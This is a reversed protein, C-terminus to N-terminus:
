RESGGDIEHFDFTAIKTLIRIERLYQHRMTRKGNTDLLKYIEGIVDPYEELFELDRPDYVGLDWFYVMLRNNQQIHTSLFKYFNIYEDEDGDDETETLCEESKIPYLYIDNIM